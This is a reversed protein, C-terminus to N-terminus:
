ASRGVEAVSITVTPRPTTSPASIPMGATANPFSWIPKLRLTPTRTPPRTKPRSRETSRRKPRMGSGASQSNSETPTVAKTPATPRLAPGSKTRPRCCDPTLRTIAPSSAVLM